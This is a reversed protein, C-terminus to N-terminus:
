GHTANPIRVAFLNLAVDSSRGETVIDTAKMERIRRKEEDIVSLVFGGHELEHLFALPDIGFSAVYEPCFEFVLKATDNQELLKQMGRIVLPEAGEVDIKILSIPPNTEGIYDDAVELTIDVPAMKETGGAVNSRRLSLGGRNVSSQFLLARGRESSLGVPHATVNGVNNWEINRCLITYNDPDPEFAVVKGDDGVRKALPVTHLGINAGVDIVTTGPLALSLLFEGIFPEYEGYLELKKAIIRDRPDVEFVLGGARLTRDRHFLGYLTNHLRGLWALRILPTRRLIASVRAFLRLLYRNVDADRLEDM